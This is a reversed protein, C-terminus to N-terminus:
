SYSRTRYKNHLAWLRVDNSPMPTNCSRIYLIIARCANENLNKEYLEGM